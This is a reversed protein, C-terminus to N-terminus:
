KFLAIIFKLLLYPWCTIWFVREWNKVESTDKYNTKHVLYEFAASLAVGCGFYLMMAYTDSM